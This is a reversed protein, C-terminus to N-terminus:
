YFIMDFLRYGILALLVYEIAQVLKLPWGALFEFRLLGAAFVASFLIRKDLGEEFMQFHTVALAYYVLPWNSETTTSNYRFLMMGVTMLFLVATGLFQGDIPPM